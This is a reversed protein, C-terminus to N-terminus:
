FSVDGWRHLPWMPWRFLKCLILNTPLPPTVYFINFALVFCFSSCFLVFCFVAIFGVLNVFALSFIKSYSLLYPVTDFTLHKICVGAFVGPPSQCQFNVRLNPLFVPSMFYLVFVATWDCWWLTGLFLHSGCSGTILIEGKLSLLSAGWEPHCVPSFGALKRGWDWWKRWAGPWSLLRNEALSRTGM